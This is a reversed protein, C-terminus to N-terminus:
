AHPTHLECQVVAQIPRQGAENELHLDFHIVPGVIDTVLALARLRDGHLIPRRYSADFSKVWGRPGIHDTVLRIAVAAGLTGQAIPRDLGRESAAVEDLFYNAAPSAPTTRGLAQYAAVQQKTVVWVGHFEDGVAIDELRGQGTPLHTADTDDPPVADAAAVAVIQRHVTSTEITAVTHGRQNHYTLRRVEFVMTGTRGTKAYPVLIQERAEIEDGPRIPEHLEFWRGGVFTVNGFRM